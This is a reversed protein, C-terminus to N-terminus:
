NLIRNGNIFLPVGKSFYEKTKVNEGNVMIGDKNKSVVM